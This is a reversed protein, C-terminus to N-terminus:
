TGQSKLDEEQNRYTAPSCSLYKKFTRGFHSLDFFGARLGIETVPLETNTLLSCAVEIRHQMLYQMPTAQFKDKFAIALLNRNAGFERSLQELTIRDAYNTHIYELANRLLPDIEGKMVTGDSELDINYLKTIMILLEVLYSRSRCSWFEDMQDNLEEQMQQVLTKCRLYVLPSLKSWRHRHTFEKIDLVPHYYIAMAQIEEKITIQPTEKEDIFLLSPAAIVCPAADQYTVIISGKMLLVIKSREKENIRSILDENQNVYLFVTHEWYPNKSYTASTM